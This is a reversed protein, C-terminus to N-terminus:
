ASPEEPSGMSFGRMFRGMLFCAMVVLGTGFMASLLYGFRPSRIFPPAYRAFPATWVQSMQRLGAPAELPPAQDLSAGAIEARTSASSYDSAMWEGWASGVTLIGLPTLLLMIGLAAWLPRLRRPRDNTDAVDTDPVDGATARLLSSDTRQLFAVLWGSVILEAMGAVTLHGLM